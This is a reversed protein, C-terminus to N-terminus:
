DTVTFGIGVADIVPVFVIQLPLEVVKVALPPPVYKHLVPAAVAAIVTFGVEL